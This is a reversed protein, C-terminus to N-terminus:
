SRLLVCKTADTRLDTTKWTKLIQSSLRTNSLQHVLSKLHDQPWSRTDHGLLFYKQSRLADRSHLEVIHDCHLIPRMDCCKGLPSQVLGGMRNINFIMIQIIIVPNEIKLM